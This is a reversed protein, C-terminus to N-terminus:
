KWKELLRSAENATLATKAAQTVGDLGPDVDVTHRSQKEIRAKSAEGLFASSIEGAKGWSSAGDEEVGFTSMLKQWSSTDKITPGLIEALASGTARRRTLSMKMSFKFLDSPNRALHAAIAEPPSWPTAPKETGLIATEPAEPAEPSATVAEVPIPAEILRLPQVLPEPAKQPAKGNPVCVWSEGLMEVIISTSGQEVVDLSIVIADVRKGPYVFEPM